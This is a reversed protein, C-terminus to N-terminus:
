EGVERAVFDRDAKWRRCRTGLFTARRETQAITHVEQYNPAWVSKVERNGTRSPTGGYDLPM